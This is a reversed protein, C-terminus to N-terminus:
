QKTDNNKIKYHIHTYLQTSELSSHGLFAQIEELDMGHYLLHTAISHRLSHFSFNTIGTQKKLQNLRYYFGGSQLREAKNNLFLAETEKGKLFFSRAGYIYNELDELCKEAIPVKREKNGKGKRIHLIHEKLHLDELNLNIGETHRLGCGYYVALMARDRIGENTTKLTQTKNNETAQYLDQIEEETLISPHSKVAKVEFHLLTITTTQRCDNLNLYKMLNNVAKLNKNITYQHLNGGKTQNERTELYHTYNAQHEQKLDTLEQVNQNELWHLFEIVHYPYSKQTKEAYNLVKLWQKYRTLLTQYTLSKLHM